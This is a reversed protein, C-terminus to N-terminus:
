AVKSRSSKRKKESTQAKAKAAAVTKSSRDTEYEDAYQARLLEEALERERAARAKKRLSRMLHFAKRQWKLLKNEKLFGFILTLVVAIEALTRLILMGTSM